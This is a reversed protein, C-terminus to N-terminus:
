AGPIEWPPRNVFPHLRLDALERAAFRIVDDSPGIGLARLRETVVLMDAEHYLRRGDSLHWEVTISDKRPNFWTKVHTLRVNPKPWGAWQHLWWQLRHSLCEKASWPQRLEAGRREGWKQEFLNKLEHSHGTLLREAKRGDRTDPFYPNRLEVVEGRRHDYRYVRREGLLKM